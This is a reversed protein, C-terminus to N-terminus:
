VFYSTPCLAHPHYSSLVFTRAMFSSVMYKKANGETYTSRYFGCMKDNHIGQFRIHLTGTSGAPLEAGFTFTTQELKEDYTTSTPELRQEAKNALIILHSQHLTLEKTHLVITSTAQLIEVRNIITAVVM